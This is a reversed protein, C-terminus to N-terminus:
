FLNFYGGTSILHYYRPIDEFFYAEFTYGGMIDFKKTYYRMGFPVILSFVVEKQEDYLTSSGLNYYFSLGSELYLDSVIERRILFGAGPAEMLTRSFIGGLSIHTYGFGTELIWKNMYINYFFSCEFRYRTEGFPLLEFDRNTKDYYFFQQRKLPISWRSRVSFWKLPTIVTFTEGSEWFWRWWDEIDRKELLSLSTFYNLLVPQYFAKEERTQSFGENFLVFIVIFWVKKM